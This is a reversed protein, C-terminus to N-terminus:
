SLTGSVAVIRAVEPRFGPLLALFGFGGIEIWVTRKKMQCM